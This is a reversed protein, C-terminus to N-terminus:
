LGVGLTCSTTASLTEVLQIGGVRQWLPRQLRLTCSIRPNFQVHAAISAIAEHRGGIRENMALGTEEDVVPAKDRAHWLYHAGGSVVLTNPLLELSAAMSAHTDRGWRIDDETSSIPYLVGTSARLRLRAHARWTLDVLGILSSAGSGLSARVNYTTLDLSGDESGSLDTLSLGTDREYDGTPLAAGFRASLEVSRDRGFSGLDQGIFAQIDGMGVTSSPSSEAPSATVMGAPILVGIRTGSSLELGASLTALNLLVSGLEAKTYAASGQLVRDFYLINYVLGIDLRPAPVSDAIGDGGGASGQAAGVKAVSSTHHALAPAQCLGISAAAVLFTLALKRELRRPEWTGIGSDWLRAESM